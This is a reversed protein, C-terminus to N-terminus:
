ENDSGGKKDPAPRQSALRELARAITQRDAASVDKPGETATDEILLRAAWTMLLNIAKTDGKLALNTATKILAEQKSIRRSKGGETVSIQENLTASFVTKFNAVGKPRGRPNGSQGKQWRTHHPPNGYGLKRTM